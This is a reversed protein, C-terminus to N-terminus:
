NYAKVSIKAGSMEVTAGVGKSFGASFQIDDDATLAISLERVLQFPQDLAVLNYMYWDQGIVVWPTWGGGANRTRYYIQIFFQEDGGSTNIGLGELNITFKQQANGFRTEWFANPPGGANEGWGVFILADDTVNNITPNETIAGDLIQSIPFEAYAVAPMTADQRDVNFRLSNTSMLGAIKADYAVLAGAPTLVWGIASPDDFNDSKIYGPSQINIGVDINTDQLLRLATATMVLTTGFDAWDDVNPADWTNLGDKDTDNTIWFRGAYDVIDRRNENCYYITGAVYTGVYVGVAGAAGEPGPVTSAPGTPGPDGKDGKTGPFFAM